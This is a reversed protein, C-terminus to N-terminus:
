RKNKGNKSHIIAVNKTPKDNDADYKVVVLNEFPKCKKKRNLIEVREEDTKTFVSRDFKEIIALKRKMELLESANKADRGDIVGQKNYVHTFTTSIKGM